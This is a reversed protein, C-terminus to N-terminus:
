NRQDPATACSSILRLLGALDPDDVLYLHFFNRTTRFKISRRGCDNGSGNKFVANIEASMIKLGMDHEGSKLVDGVDTGGPGERSESWVGWSEMEYGVAVGRPPPGPWIEARLGEWTKGALLSILAAKARPGLSEELLRVDDTEWALILDNLPDTPRPGACYPRRRVTAATITGGMDSVYFTLGLAVAMASDLDGESWALKPNHLLRLLRPYAARGMIRAYANMLWADDFAFHSEEGLAQISDFAVELAPVASAGLGVLAEEGERDDQKEKTDGCGVPEAAQTQGPAQHTLFRILEEASQKPPQCWARDTLMLGLLLLSTRAGVRILKRSILTMAYAAQSNKVM